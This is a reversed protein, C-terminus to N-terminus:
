EPEYEVIRVVIRKKLRDKLPMGPEPILRIM